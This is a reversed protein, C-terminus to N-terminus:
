EASQNLSKTKFSLLGKIMGTLLLLAPVLQAIVILACFGLFVWVVLGSHDERAVQAAFAPVSFALLGILTPIQILKAKM